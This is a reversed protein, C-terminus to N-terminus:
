RLLLPTLDNYYHTTLATVTQPAKLDQPLFTHKKNGLKERPIQFSFYTKQSCVTSELKMSDRSMSVAKVTCNDM